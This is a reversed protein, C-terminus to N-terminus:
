YVSMGGWVIINLFRLVDLASPDSCMAIPSLWILESRRLLTAMPPRSPLVDLASALTGRVSPARSELVADLSEVFSAALPPTLVGRRAAMPLSERVALESDLPPLFNSAPSIVRVLEESDVARAEPMRLPLILRVALESDLIDSASDRLAAAVVAVGDEAGVAGLATGCRPYDGRAAKQGRLNEPSNGEAVLRRLKVIHAIIVAEAQRSCVPLPM